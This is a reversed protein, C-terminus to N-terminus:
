IKGDAAKHDELILEYSHKYSDRDKRTFELQDNLVKFEKQLKESVITPKTNPVSSNSTSCPKKFDSNNIQDNVLNAKILSKNLNSSISEMKNGLQMLNEAMTCFDYKESLQNLEVIKREDQSAGVQIDPIPEPTQELANNYAWPIDIGNEDTIKILPFLKPLNESGSPSVYSDLNYDFDESM